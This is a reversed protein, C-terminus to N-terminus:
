KTYIESQTYELGYTNMKHINKEIYEVRYLDWETYIGYWTHGVKYRYWKKFIKNRIYKM